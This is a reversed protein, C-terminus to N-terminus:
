PKLYGIIKNDLLSTFHNSFSMNKGFKLMVINLYFYKPTLMSSHELHFIIINVGM